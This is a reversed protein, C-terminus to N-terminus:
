WTPQTLTPTAIKSAETAYDVHEQTISIKRRMEKTQHIVVTDLTQISDERDAWKNALSMLDNITKPKARGLIERFDKPVLSNCFV